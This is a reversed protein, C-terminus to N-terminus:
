QKRNRPNKKEKEKESANIKINLTTPPSLIKNDQYFPSSNSISQLELIVLL